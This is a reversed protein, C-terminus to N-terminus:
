DPLIVLRHPRGDLFIGVHLHLDRGPIIDDETNHVIELEIGLDMADGRRFAVQAITAYYEWVKPYGDGYSIGFDLARCLRDGGAYHLSRPNNTRADSTIVIPRGLVGRVTDLLRIISESVKDPHDFESPRFYRVTSWDNIPIDM